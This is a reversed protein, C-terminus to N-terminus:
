KPANLSIIQDCVALSKQNHTILIILKGGQALLKFHNLIREESAEDLENFPEDLIIIDANKYVARAISIRQRQGGSINKGDEAILANIGGPFNKLVHDLGSINLAQHLRAPDYFTKASDLLINGLVTDHFIFAQQKVYAIKGWYGRREMANAVRKNILIEGADLELFGVLLHILTTKGKGSNGEIGVLNGREAGFNLTEIIKQSGDYQFSSNKFTVSQVKESSESTSKEEYPTYNKLISDVVYGYTKMQSNINLIKNIGPIIKYAAVMFAGINLIDSPHSSNTFKNLGVLILLALVVFLEMLRNPIVQVTQLDAVHSNMKQQFEVYRGTFYENKGYINSEEFGSLAEKLYQLTKESSDKVKSRVPKLRIKLLYSIFITPISFILLLGLFLKFNFWLMIIVTAFIVITETFLLLVGGLIQNAFQSPRRSIEEIHIATDVQIYNTYTGKFYNSLKYNSIRSAIEYIFRQQIQYLYIGSFNKLAFLILFFGILMLPDTSQIWKPLHINSTNDAICHNIFLLLATLSALDIIVIAVNSLILLSYKHKEKYNLIASIKLLTHKLTM